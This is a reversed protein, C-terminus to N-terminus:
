NYYLFSVAPEVRKGSPIEKCVFDFQQPRVGLGPTLDELEYSHHTAELQNVLSEMLIECRM